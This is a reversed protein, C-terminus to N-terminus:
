VKWEVCDICGKGGGGHSGAGEMGGVVFVGGFGMPGRCDIGQGGVAGVGGRGSVESIAGSWM